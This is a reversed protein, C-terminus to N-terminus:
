RRRVPLGVRQDGHDVVARLERRQRTVLRALRGLLYGVVFVWTQVQDRTRAFMLVTTVPIALFPDLGFSAFLQYALYAALIFFGVYVDNMAIRSQVFFMGDLLVFLAFCM